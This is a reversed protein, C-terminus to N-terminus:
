AIGFRKLKRYLTSKGVKLLRAAALKDGGTQNLARLLCKKEYLDLSVPEEEGIEWEAPTATNALPPLPAALPSHTGGVAGARAVPTVERQPLDHHLERLPPPLDEIGITAVVAHTCAREISTALERVNGPWDYSQLTWLADDTLELEGQPSSHRHAFHQALAPIDERRERLTPLHVENSRLGTLLDELFQGDRVRASLDVSTSAVVRVEVREAKGTGARVVEGQTVLRLLKKQLAMPLSEIGDLALTGHHAQHVAGPRDVLADPFAGKVQGFLEAELHQESLAACAIPVFPGSLHGGFHVARAAHKKGTGNDGVLLVPDSAQAAEAIRARVRRMTAGVGILSSPGFALRAADLLVGVERRPITYEQMRLLETAVRRKGLDLLVVARMGPDKEGPNPLLPVVSASLSRTGRGKSSPLDFRFGERTETRADRVFAELGSAPALRGLNKGQVNNGLLDRAGRDALRVIGEPDVLMLGDPHGAALERYLLAHEGSSNASETDAARAREEQVRRGHEELARVQRALEEHQARVKLLAKVVDELGYLETKSLFADCGAEYGQHLEERSVGAKSFLAVPVGSTTPLQRLRRVVEVGTIGSLLGSDILILGFDGERAELLGNAGNQAVVVEHGLDRLRNHMVLRSSADDDILLIRSV